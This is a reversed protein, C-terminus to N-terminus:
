EVIYEIKLILQSNQRLHANRSKLTAVLNDIDLNLYQTQGKHVVRFEQFDLSKMLGPELRKGQANLSPYFLLVQINAPDLPKEELEYMFQPGRIQLVKYSVEEAHSYWRVRELPQKSAKRIVTQDPTYYIEIPDKEAIGRVYVTESIFKKALEQTLLDIGFSADFVVGSPRALDMLRAALNLPRGSYDLTLDRSVLSTAAGRALGVGLKDPVPFNIMPDGACIGPFDEVVALCANVSEQAIEALSHEDYARVILLGDGTPKFFSAQPFYNNLITLYARRLFIAAESSEALKAFSSFGRVDLFISVQFGSVGVAQSLLDKFQRHM